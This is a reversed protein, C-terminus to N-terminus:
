SVSTDLLKTAPNIKKAPWIKAKNLASNDGVSVNNGIVSDEIVCKQGIITHRGVISRKIITGKGILCRDMIVSNSVSSGKQLITYNDIVSSDIEVEPELAIHRGLLIDGTFKYAGRQARDILQKQLQASKDSRGQFRVGEFKGTIGLENADLRRLLSFVAKLYGEPTGLDFWFGKLPFGVIRYGQSVLSPIVDKGFDMRREQQLKMGEPSEFFDRLGQSFLYIGTNVQRSPPNMGSPKEVFGRLVNGEGVEAVGFRSIDEDPELEKLAITMFSKSAQHHQWMHFVDLDFILDGQVVLFPEDFGYYDMITKVSDASGVSEVNPQYRVRILDPPIGLRAAIRGGGGLYDYVSVYNTYGSLGMYFETLGQSAMKTLMLEILPRNLVRVMAKSTDVTLPYLRTGMGGLPIVVKRFM